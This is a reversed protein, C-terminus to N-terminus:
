EGVVPNFSELIEWGEYTFDLDEDLYEAEVDVKFVSINDINCNKLLIVQRGLTSGADSNELVMDFYTDEGTVSYQHMLQRFLSTAYYITMSGTGTWGGARHKTVVSGLVPVEIKNKDMVIDINKAYLLEERNGNITIYAKGLSGRVTDIAKLTRQSM